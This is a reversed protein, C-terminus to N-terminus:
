VYELMRELSVRAKDMIEEPLDIVFQNKLLSQHVDELHTVKMGRCHKAIGASLFTKDPNEKKLRYLMGEETGVLVTKSKTESAFRVMGSTSLVEDAVDIVEAKCEPHVMVPADPYKEKAKLVEERSFRNHVYCFGEWPIITKETFRQVWAALNKDPTFIIKEAEINQVVKVANASTCCVDSLAKVEATSNVYTVVMADPNEEKLKKLGDVDVMAAM